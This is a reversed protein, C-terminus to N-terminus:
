RGEVGTKGWKEDCYEGYRGRATKGPKARM